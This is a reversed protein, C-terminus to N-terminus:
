QELCLWTKTEDESRGETFEKFTKVNWWDCDSLFGLYEEVWDKALTVVGNYNIMQKNNETIAYVPETDYQCFAVFDIEASLLQCILDDQNVVIHLFMWNTLFPDSDAFLKDMVEKDACNVLHTFNDINSIRVSNSFGLSEIYRVQEDSLGNTSLLFSSASSNSVFGYRLKM